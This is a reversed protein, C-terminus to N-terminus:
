VFLINKNCRYRETAADIMSTSCIHSLLTLQTNWETNLPRHPSFLVTKFKQLAFYRWLIRLLLLYDSITTKKKKQKKKTNFIFIRSWFEEWSIETEIHKMRNSRSWIRCSKLNSNRRITHLWSCKMGRESGRMRLPMTFFKLPWYPQWQTHSKTQRNVQHGWAKCQRKGPLPQSSSNIAFYHSLILYNFWHIFSIEM